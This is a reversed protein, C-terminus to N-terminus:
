TSLKYHIYFQKWQNFILIHISHRFIPYYQIFFQCLKHFPLMQLRIKLLLYDNARLFSPFSRFVEALKEWYELRDSYSYLRTVVQALKTPKIIHRRVFNWWATDRPDNNVMPFGSTLRLNRMSMWNKKGRKRKPLLGWHALAEENVLNRSWVCRRM